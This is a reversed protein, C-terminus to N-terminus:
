ARPISTGNDRCTPTGKDTSSRCRHADQERCAKRRTGRSGILGSGAGAPLQNSAGDGGLRHALKNALAVAAVLRPKTALLRVIWPDETARKSM